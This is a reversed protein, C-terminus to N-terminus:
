SNNTEAPLLQDTRAEDSPVSGISPENASPNNIENPQNNFYEIFKETRNISDSISLGRFAMAIFLLSILLSIVISGIEKILTLNSHSFNSSTVIPSKSILTYAIVPVACCIIYLFTYMMKKRGRDKKSKYGDAYIALSENIVHCTVLFRRASEFSMVSRSPHKSNLLANIEDLTVNPCKTLWFFLKEVLYKNCPKKEHEAILEIDLKYKDRWVSHRYVFFPLITGLLVTIIAIVLTM